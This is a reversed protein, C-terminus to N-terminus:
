WYQSDFDCRSDKLLLHGCSPWFNCASAVYCLCRTRWQVSEGQHVQLMRDSASHVSHLCVVRRLMNAALQRSSCALPRHEGSQM